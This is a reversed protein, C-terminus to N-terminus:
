ERCEKMVRLFYRFGILSGCIVLVVLAVIWVPLELIVTKTELRFKLLMYKFGLFVLTGSFLISAVNGLTSLLRTWRPFVRYIIDLKIESNRRVAITYGVFIILILLYRGMEDPWSLPFHFINRMVVNLCIVLTTFVVCAFIILEEAKALIKDIKFM